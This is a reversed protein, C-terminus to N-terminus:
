LGYGEIFSPRKKPGNLADIEAELTSVVDLLHRTVGYHSMRIQASDVTNVSSPMFELSVAHVSKPFVPEVDSTLVGLVHVDHVRFTSIYPDNYKYRKLPIRSLTSYCQSPDAYEVGEKLAPDSPNLIQGSYFISRTSLDNFRNDITIANTAKPFTLYGSNM